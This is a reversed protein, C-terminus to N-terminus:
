LLVSMGEKAFCKSDVGYIDHACLSVCSDIVTCCLLACYLVAYAVCCLVAHTVETMSLLNLSLMPHDAHDLLDPLYSFALSVANDEEEAIRKFIYEFVRPALGRQVVAHLTLPERATQLVLKCVSFLPLAFFCTSSATMGLSSCKVTVHLQLQHRGRILM